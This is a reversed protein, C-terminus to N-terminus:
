SLFRFVCISDKMTDDARNIFINSILLNKADLETFNNQKLFEQLEKDVFLKNFIEDLFPEIIEKYVVASKFDMIDDPSLVREPLQFKKIAEEWIIKVTFTPKLKNINMKSLPSSFIFCSSTEINDIIKDVMTSSNLFGTIETKIMRYHKIFDKKNIFENNTKDELM